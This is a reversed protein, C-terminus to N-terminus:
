GIYGPQGLLLNFLGAEVIKFVLKYSEVVLALYRIGFYVAWLRNGHSQSRDAPRKAKATSCSGSEGASRTQHAIM